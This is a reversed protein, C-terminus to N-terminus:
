KPQTLKSLFDGRCIPIMGLNRIIGNQIHSPLTLSLREELGTHRQLVRHLLLGQLGDPPQGCAAVLGPRPRGRAPVRGAAAAGGRDTGDAELLEALPLYPKPLVAASM